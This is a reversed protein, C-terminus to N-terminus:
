LLEYAGIDCRKNKQNKLRPRDLQDRQECASESFDFPSGTDIIPSSSKPPHFPPKGAVQQLPLLEPLIGVRDNEEQRNFQCNYTKGLLNYGSSNIVGSCDPSFQAFNGSLISNSMVVPVFTHIGGAYIDASNNTITTNKLLMTDYNQIAGGRQGSFNGSITTNTITSAGRSWIGGGPGLAENALIASQEVILTGPGYQVSNQIAGGVGSKWFARNERLISRSIRLIGDNRIGGGDDGSVNKEITSDVLHLSGVNWIAAGDFGTPTRGNRITLRRIVVDASRSIRLLRFYKTNSADSRELISGAGQIEITTTLAPLGVGAESQHDIDKITHVSNDELRIVSRDPHQNASNIADALSCFVKASKNCSRNDQKVLLLNLDDTEKNNHACSVVLLLAGLFFVNRVTGASIM